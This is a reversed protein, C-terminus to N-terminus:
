ARKVRATKAAKLKRRVVNVKHAASTAKDRRDDITLTTSVRGSGAAFGAEHAAEVAAFIDKLSGELITAMPNLQVKVATRAIATQVAAVADSLSTTCTGLPVVTLQAIPM